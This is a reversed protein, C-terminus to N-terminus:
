WFFELFMSKTLHHFHVKITRIIQVQLPPYLAHSIQYSKNLFHFMNEPYLTKLPLPNPESGQSSFFLLWSNERLGRRGHPVNREPRPVFPSSLACIWDFGRGGPAAQAFGDPDRGLSPRSVDGAKLFWCKSHAPESATVM